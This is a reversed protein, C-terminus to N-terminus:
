KWICSFKIQRVVKTLSWTHLNVFITQGGHYLTGRTDCVVVQRYIHIYLHIICNHYNYVSYSEGQCNVGKIHQKCIYRIDPLLLLTIVENFDYCVLTRTPWIHQLYLPWVPQLTYLDSLNFPISSLCISPYLDSLNFPISTPYTLPYLPWVSLLTSTLCTWEETQNRRQSKRTQVYGNNANSPRLVRESVWAIPIM